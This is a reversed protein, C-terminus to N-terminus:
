LWSTLLSKTIAINWMLWPVLWLLFTIKLHRKPLSLSLGAACNSIFESFVFQPLDSSGFLIKNNLQALQILIDQIEFFRLVLSFAQNNEASFMSLFAMNLYDDCDVKNAKRELEKQCQKFTKDRQRVTQILQNLKPNMGDTIKLLHVVKGNVVHILHRSDSM